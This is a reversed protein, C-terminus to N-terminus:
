FSVKLANDERTTWERLLCLSKQLLVSVKTVFHVYKSENDENHSKEKAVDVSSSSLPLSFLSYLLKRMHHTEVSFM